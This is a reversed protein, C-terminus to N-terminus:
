GHSILSAATELGGTVDLRARLLGQSSPLIYSSNDRGIQLVKSEGGTAAVPPVFQAWAGAADKIEFSLSASGGAAGVDTVDARPFVYSQLNTLSLETPNLPGTGAPTQQHNTVLSTLVGLAGEIRVYRSRIEPFDAGHYANRWPSVYTARTAFGMDDFAALRTIPVPTTVGRVRLVQTSGQLGDARFEPRGDTGETGALDYHAAFSQPNGRATARIRAGHEAVDRGVDWYSVFYPRLNPLIYLHTYSITGASGIPPAARLRELYLGMPLAVTAPVPDGLRPPTPSLAVARVPPVTSAALTVIMNAAGQLNVVRAHSENFYIHAPFLQDDDASPIPLTDPLQRFSNALAVADPRFETPAVEAGTLLDDALDTQNQLGFGYRAITAVTTRFLNADPLEAARPTAANLWDQATNVQPRIESSTLRRIQEIDSPVVDIGEGPVDTLTLAISAEVTEANGSPNWVYFEISEGPRLPTLPAPILVTRVEQFRSADSEWYPYGRFWVAAAGFRVFFPNALIAMPSVYQNIRTENTVIWQPTTPRVMDQGRLTQSHNTM